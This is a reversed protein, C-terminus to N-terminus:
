NDYFPRLLANNFCFVNEGRYVFDFDRRAISQLFSRSRAQGPLQWDHLEVILLPFLDVWEDDRDFLEGEGGEIDIKFILPTRGKEIESRVLQNACIVSVPTGDPAGLRYAWEGRGPDVLSGTRAVSGLAAEKCDVPLCSVNRALVECNQPDPEVALISADPFCAAFWVASAGINAGADIILPTGQAAQLAEHFRRLAACQAFDDVRYDRMVFVQRLVALDSGQTRAVFPRRGSPLRLNLTLRGNQAGFLALLTRAARLRYRTIPAPLELM